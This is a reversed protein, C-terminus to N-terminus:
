RCPRGEPRGDRELEEAEMSVLLSPYNAIAVEAARLQSCGEQSNGLPKLDITSAPAHAAAM